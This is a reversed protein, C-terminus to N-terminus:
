SSFRVDGICNRKRRELRMQPSEGESSSPASKLLASDMGEFTHVNVVAYTKGEITSTVVPVVGCCSCVHFQATKSGFEYRSVSAANKISISLSGSPSSTWVGGHKLCFSCTCARAHIETPPSSSSSGWLLEFSINGCHCRGGITLQKSDRSSSASSDDAFCRRFCLSSSPSSFWALSSISSPPTPASMAALPRLLSRGITSPTQLLSAYISSRLVVRLRSM